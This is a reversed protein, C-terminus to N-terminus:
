ARPAGIGQRDPVHAFARGEPDATHGIITRELKALEAAVMPANEPGCREALETLMALLRRCIQTSTAGYERIETVALQLYDAFTRVPVVLRPRGGRDGIVLYREDGLYPLLGRLLWEVQNTLQVGTTPDNVAPSLARIAIDVLIRMAFAPDDEISREKGTAIMSVLREPSPPPGAGYVTVLPTGTTVFDGVEFALLLVCDARVAEAVLGDIHVAQVAGGARDLTVVAVPQGEVGPETARTVHWHAMARASREAEELGQRAVLAGV